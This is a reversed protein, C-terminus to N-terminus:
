PPGYAFTMGMCGLGFAFVELNTKGLKRKQMEEIEKVNTSESDMVCINGLPHAEPYQSLHGGTYASDYGSRGTSYAACRSHVYLAPETCSQYGV